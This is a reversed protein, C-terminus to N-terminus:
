LKAAFVTFIEVAAAKLEEETMKTKLEELSKAFVGKSNVLVRIQRAGDNWHLSFQHTGSRTTGMKTKRETYSLIHVTVVKLGALEMEGFEWVLNPNEMTAKSMWSREPTKDRNEEFAKATNEFCVVCNGIATMAEAAAGNENKVESVYMPAVNGMGVKGDM